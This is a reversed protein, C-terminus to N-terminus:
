FLASVVLVMQILWVYGMHNHPWPKNLREDGPGTKRPVLHSSHRGM